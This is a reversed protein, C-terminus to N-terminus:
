PRLIEPVGSLSDRSLCGLARICSLAPLHSLLPPHYPGWNDSLPVVPTRDRGLPCAGQRPWPGAGDQALRAQAACDFASVPLGAERSWCEASATLTGPRQSGSRLGRQRSLRSKSAAADYTRTGAIDGSSRTNRTHKPRLAAGRGALAREM